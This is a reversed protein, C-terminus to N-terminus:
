LVGSPRWLPLTSIPPRGKAPTVAKAALLDVAFLKLM